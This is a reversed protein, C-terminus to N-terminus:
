FAKITVEMGPHEGDTGIAKRDSYDLLNVNTSAVRVTSSGPFFTSHNATPGLRLFLETSSAPTFTAIFDLVRVDPSFQLDGAPPSANDVGVPRNAVLIRTFELKVMDSANVVQNKDMDVWSAKILALPPKYDVKIDDTDDIHDPGLSYVRGKVYDVEYQRGWPDAPLDQLYRGLLLNLNDSQFPRDEFTDFKILAQKIIDLEHRAKTIKTERVYNQYYPMAAGVLVAIIAVVILLEILTFANRNM